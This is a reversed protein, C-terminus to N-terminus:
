NIDLASRVQDQTMGSKLRHDYLLQIIECDIPAYSLTNTWGQYFISQQYRFSDNMLGISQTLEERILHSREQQNPKDTSILIKGRNVAGSSDWWIYFFGWNGPVYNPEISPFQDITTFYIEVNSDNSVISLSIGGMMSNLEAIVQNLTSIDESTPSGNVKIRINNVWKHLVTTPTGYEAGFAIEFFYELGQNSYITNSPPTSNNISTDAINETIELKQLDCGWHLTISDTDSGESNIATATLTYVENPHLNVQAKYKGWAGASDDKSFTVIPVPVGTVVSKIRYYCVGDAESYTPGQYIMLDITPPSLEENASM